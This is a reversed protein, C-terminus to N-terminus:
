ESGGGVSEAQGGGGRSRRRIERLAATASQATVLDGSRRASEALGRLSLSRGPARELSRAFIEQAEESRGLFLFVEGLMEHSPKAPRPPGLGFPIGEELTVAEQLREVALEPQGDVLLLSGELELALVKAEDSGELDLGQIAEFSDQALQKKGRRLAALGTTFHDTAVWHVPLDSLDPGEPIGRWAETNMLHHARMQLYHARIREADSGELDQRIVALLRAADEFKGQQLYAYHLWLLAHYGRQEPGLNKAKVRAEAAEWSDINSSVSEQWRGLAFFIHSPMHLAHVAAPAIDAYVRAARLGLPAHIPDDYSHILYHAAGPHQPNAAFIEEAVAAAKMYTAFDRGEHCTGLLSLSYFAAAELDEPYTKMLREMAEAYALNRELRTGEGYLVEVAELYGGERPTPAGQIRRDSNEGLLALVARAEQLNEYMWIPRNHTMAEGWFAMTFDPQVKRARQFAELADDYEFSHLYLVGQLFHQQAEASGSTPFSIEGLETHGPEDAASIGSGLVLGMVWILAWAGRNLLTRDLVVGGIKM